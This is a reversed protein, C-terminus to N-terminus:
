NFVSPEIKRPLNVNFISGKGLESSFKINGGLYNVYQQVISLGLGTGQINDVNSSRFFRTFLKKHDEKPIGIGQDIVKIFVESKQLSFSVTITTNEKSFKIANSILNILIHRLLKPDLFVIPDENLNKEVLVQQNVKLIGTLESILDHIFNFLDFREPNITVKGEEIKNVSLIDNLIETLNKISKKIKEIHKDRKEPDQLNSYKEVLSLSSLVTSLPTRFEHSAISIFKTKMSNVEQERRLSNDLEEKTKELKHITEKLILTREEVERELEKRYNRENEEAKRRNTVDIIFCIVFNGVSNSFPSLSVEVPFELGSKKLAKLDYNLGMSRAKPKEHYTKTHNTHNHRYRQPILIEIPKNYLEQQTDYDFLKLGAPNIKLINSNSDTIIISETAYNFIAEFQNFIDIDVFHNLLSDRNQEKM